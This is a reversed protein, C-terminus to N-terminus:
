GPINIGTQESRYGLYNGISQTQCSLAAHVHTMMERFARRTMRRATNHPMVYRMKLDHSLPAVGMVIHILEIERGLLGLPIETPQFFLRLHKQEDPMLNFQKIYRKFTRAQQLARRQYLRLAKDNVAVGLSLPSIGPAISPQDDQDLRKLAKGAERGAIRMDNPSTKAFRGMKRLGKFSETKVNGVMLKAKKSKKEFATLQQLDKQLSEHNGMGPKYNISRKSMPTKHRRDLKRRIKACETLVDKVVLSANTKKPPKPPKLSDPQPSPRGGIPRHMASTTLKNKKMRKQDKKQQERLSKALGSWFQPTNLTFVHVRSDVRPRHRAGNVKALGLVLAM